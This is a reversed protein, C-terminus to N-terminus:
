IYLFSCYVIKLFLYSVSDVDQTDLQMRVERVNTLIHHDKLREEWMKFLPFELQIDEMNKAISRGISMRLYAWIQSSLLIYKFPFRCHSLFM